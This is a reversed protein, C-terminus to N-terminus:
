SHIISLYNLNMTDNHITYNQGNLMNKIIKKIKVESYKFIVFYFVGEFTYLNM